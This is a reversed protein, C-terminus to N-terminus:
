TRADRISKHVVYMAPALMVIISSGLAALLWPNPAYCSREGIATRCGEMLMPYATVLVSFFWTALLGILSVFVTTRYHAREARRAGANRQKVQRREHVGSGIRLATLAVLVWFSIAVARDLRSRDPCEINSPTKDCGIDGLEVSFWHAGIGLFALTAVIYIVTIVSSVRTKGNKM